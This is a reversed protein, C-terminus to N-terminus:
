VSRSLTASPWRSWPSTVNVPTVVSCAGSPTGYAGNLRSGLPQRQRLVALQDHGRLADGRVPDRREHAPVREVPREEAVQRHRAREQRRARRVAHPLVEGELRGRDRRVAPVQEDAHLAREHLVPRRRRDRVPARRPDEAVVERGAAELPLVDVEVVRDGLRRHRRRLKETLPSTSSSGNLSSNMSAISRENETPAGPVPLM